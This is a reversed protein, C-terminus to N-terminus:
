SNTIASIINTNEKGWLISGNTVIFCGNVDFDINVARQKSVYNTGWCLERTTSQWSLVSVGSSQGLIIYNEDIIYINFKGSEFKIVAYFWIDKPVYESSVSGGGFYSGGLNYCDCAISGNGAVYLLFPQNSRFPCLILQTQTLPSNIKIKSCIIFSNYSNPQFVITNGNSDIPYVRGNTNQAFRYNSDLETYGYISSNSSYKAIPTYIENQSSITTSNIIM